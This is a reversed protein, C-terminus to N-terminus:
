RCRRMWGCGARRGSICWGCASKPRTWRRLLRGRRPCFHAGEETLEMRRTTRNLLMVGLDEELRALARSVGSATQGLLEAAASLSGADVVGLFVRLADSNLAM